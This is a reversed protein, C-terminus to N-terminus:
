EATGQGGGQGGRGRPRKGGRASGDGEDEPGRKQGRGGGPQFQQAGPNLSTRPSNNNQGRGRGAAAGRGGGRGIQSAQPTQIQNQQQGRGGGRGGPLPISSAGGRPIGSNSPIQNQIQAGIIGQLARPGTGFSGRGAQQQQPPQIQSAPPPGQGTFGPPAIGSSNGFGRGMQNQAQSFPNPATTQGAQAQLFPNPQPQSANLSSPTPQLAQVPANVNAGNAQPVTPTGAAAQQQSPTATPTPQAPASPRSQASQLTLVPAQPKAPTSPTVAPKQPAKANKAVEYVKLVEETPTEKAAKEVVSWRARAQGLQGDKLRAKLGEAHKVEAERKELAEKLTKEFEAKAKALEAELNQTTSEQRADQPLAEVKQAKLKEYEGKTLELEAKLKNHEESIKRKAIDVQGNVNKRLISLATSNKAFFAKVEEDDADIAPLGEIKVSTEPKSAASPTASEKPIEQAASASNQAGSAQVEKRIRDIEAQHDAKLQETQAIFGQKAEKLKNNLMERLTEAKAERNTIRTERQALKAEREKLEADVAALRQENEDHQAKADSEPKDEASETVEPRARLEEIEKHAAALEEKLKAIEEQLKELGEATPPATSQEALVTNSQEVPAANLQPQSAVARAADLEEQLQVIRQVNEAQSTTLM